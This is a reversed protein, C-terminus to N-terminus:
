LCCSVDLRLELELEDHIEIAFEGILPISPKLHRAQDIAYQHIAVLRLGRRQYFRVADLNDNSTILWLRRAGRRRAEQVVANLLDTGIGSRQKTSDLTVLECEDREIHFTALGILTGDHIAVKAGLAGADHVRGRSVVLSSGWSDILFQAIQEHDSARADRLITQGAVCTLMACRALLNEIGLIPASFM